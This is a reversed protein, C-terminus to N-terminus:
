QIKADMFCTGHLVHRGKSELEKQVLSKAGCPELYRDSSHALWLLPEAMSAVGVRRFDSICDLLGPFNSFGTGKFCTITGDM